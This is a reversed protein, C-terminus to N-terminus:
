PPFHIMSGSMPIFHSQSTPRPFGHPPASRDAMQQRQSFSDRTMRWENGMEGSRRHCRARGDREYCQVPRDKNQLICRTTYFLSPATASVLRATLSVDWGMFEGFMVKVLLWELADEERERRRHLIPHCDVDCECEGSGRVPPPMLRLRVPTAAFEGRGFQQETGPALASPPDAL